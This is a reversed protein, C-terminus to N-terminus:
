KHLLTDRQVSLAKMVAELDHIPGWIRLAEFADLDDPTLKKESILGIISYVGQLSCLELDMLEEEPEEELHMDDDQAIDDADVNFFKGSSNAGTSNNAAGSSSHAAQSSSSFNNGSLLSGVTNNLYSNLTSSGLTSTM